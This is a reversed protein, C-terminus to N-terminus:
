SKLEETNIKYLSSDITIIGVDTEDTVNKNGRLEASRYTLSCKWGNILCPCWSILGIRIFAFHFDKDVVSSIVISYQRREFSRCCKRGGM